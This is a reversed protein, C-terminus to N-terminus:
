LVLLAEVLYICVQRSRAVILDQAASTICLHRSDATVSALSCVYPVTCSAFSDPTAQADIEYGDRQQANSKQGRQEYPELDLWQRAPLKRRINTGQGQMIPSDARLNSERTTVGRKLFNRSQKL